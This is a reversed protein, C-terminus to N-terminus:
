ASRGQIRRVVTREIAPAFGNRLNTLRLDEVIVSAIDAQREAMKHLKDAETQDLAAEAPDIHEVDPPVPMPHPKCIGLLQLLM